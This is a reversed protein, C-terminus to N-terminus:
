SLHIALWLGALITVASLAPPGLVLGCGIALGLASPRGQPHYGASM